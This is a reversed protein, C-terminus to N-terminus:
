DCLDVWIFDLPRRADSVPAIVHADASTSCLDLSPPTSFDMLDDTDTSVTLETSVVNGPQLHQRQTDTSTTARDNTTIDAPRLSLPSFHSELWEPGLPCLFPIHGNCWVNNLRGWGGWDRIRDDYGPSSHPYQCVVRPCYLRITRTPDNFHECTGHPLTTSQVRSACSHCSALPVMKEPLRVWAGDYNTCVACHVTLDLTSASESPRSGAHQQVPGFATSDSVTPCRPVVSITCNRSTAINHARAVAHNDALHQVHQRRTPSCLHCYPCIPM